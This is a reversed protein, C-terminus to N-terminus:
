GLRHKFFKSRLPAEVRVVLAYALHKRGGCGLKCDLVRPRVEVVGVTIIFGECELYWAGSTYVHLWKRKELYSIAFFGNHLKVFGLITTTTLNEKRVFFSAWLHNM